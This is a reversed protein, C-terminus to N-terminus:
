SMNTKDNKDEISVCIDEKNIEMPKIEIMKGNRKIMISHDETVIVSKGNELEIQFRRKNTRHRYLASIKEGTVSISNDLDKFQKNGVNHYVGNINEFHNKITDKVDDIIVISNGAVSDTDGAIIVQSPHTYLSDNRGKAKNWVIEKNLPLRIGDILEAITEIMFTTIQRGTGTISAGLRPDHFRSFANLMSGYQSNLMLKRNMQKLDYFDEQKKAELYASDLKNGTAKLITDAKKAWENKLGKLEIRGQFWHTLVASVLGEGGSQDVVTGHASVAFTKEKFINAWEAATEEVLTGESDELRLTIIKTSRTKIELSRGTVAATQNKAAACFEAEGIRHFGRRDEILVHKVAEGLQCPNLDSVGPGAIHGEREILHRMHALHVPQMVREAAVTRADGHHRIKACLGSALDSANGIIRTGEVAFFERIM